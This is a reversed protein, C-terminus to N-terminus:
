YANPNRRPAPHCSKVVHCDVFSVREPAAREPCPSSPIPRCPHWDPDSPVPLPQRFLRCPLSARGRVREGGRTRGRSSRSDIPVSIASRKEIVEAAQFLWEEEFARGALQVGLQAGEASTAGIRLRPVGLVPIATNPWRLTVFERARHAAVLDGGIVFPPEGLTPLLLIPYRRMFELVQKCVLARRNHGTIYDTFTVEGIAEGMVSFMRDYWTRIGAEGVRHVETVVGSVPFETMALQWLFTAM